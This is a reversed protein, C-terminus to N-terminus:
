CADEASCRRGCGRRRERKAAAGAAQEAIWTCGDVCSARRPEFFDGGGSGSCSGRARAAGQVGRRVWRRMTADERREVQAWMASAQAALTACRAGDAAEGPAAELDPAQKTRSSSRFIQNRPVRTWRGLALTLNAPRSQLHTAATRTISTPRNESQRSAADKDDPEARALKASCCLTARRAPHHAQSRPM